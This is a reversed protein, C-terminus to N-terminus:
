GCGCSHAMTKVMVVLTGQKEGCGCSQAKTKVVMLTYRQKRWLWSSSGEINTYHYTYITKIPFPKDLCTLRKISKEVLLYLYLVNKNSHTYIIITM